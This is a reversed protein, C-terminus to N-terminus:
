GMSTLTGGAKMPFQKTISVSLVTSRRGLVPLQTGVPWYATSTYGPIVPASASLFNRSLEGSTMLLKM